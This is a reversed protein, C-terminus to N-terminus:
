NGARGGRALLFQHLRHRDAEDMRSFFLAVHYPGGDKRHPDSPETRVVVAEGQVTEPRGDSTGAPSPLVLSLAMRTMPPIFLPATCRLGGASLDVTELEVADRLTSRVRLRHAVRPHRRKDKTGTMRGERANTELLAHCAETELPAAM